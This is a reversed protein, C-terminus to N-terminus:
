TNFQYYCYCKMVIQGLLSLIDFYVEMCFFRRWIVHLIIRAPHTNSKSAEVLRGRAYVPSRM